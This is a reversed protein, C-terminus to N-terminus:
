GSTCFRMIGCQTSAQKDASVRGLTWNWLREAPCLVALVMISCHDRVALGCVVKVSVHCEHSHVEYTPLFQSWGSVRVVPGGVRGENFIGWGCPRRGGPELSWSRFGLGRPYRRGGGSTTCLLSSTTAAPSTASTPRPSTAKRGRPSTTESSPLMNINSFKADYLRSSERGAVQLVIGPCASTLSRSACLLHM